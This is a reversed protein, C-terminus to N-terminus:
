ILSLIIKELIEAKKEDNKMDSNIKLALMTNQNQYLKEFFYNMQKQSEKYLILYSGGIM